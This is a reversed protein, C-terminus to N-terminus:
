YEKRQRSSPINMAKRYKTITRRALTYGHTAMEKVLADDSLPNSKDESDIVEQLKLRIKQWAVEDGESTTTGGGFFRRLPYLGRPTEMWKGDVARSITTVHVGVDDAIQQMKLPVIAEPGNELFDTQHDVIAQSVKRLTTHRQEISDILWKASEIKKRIYEKTKADPNDALMRLYKRSIKLEPTYENLLQVTWKDDDDQQVRVDPTVNQSVHSQFCRGPFPEFTRIQELGAKITELSYGTTREILPLRNHSINDLHDSILTIVIDRLPLDDTVQLLLCEQLDRAGVGPPDLKQILGLVQDATGHDISKGYVQMIEPLTGQLRGNEDLNQILFEGFDRVESDVEFYHFQELLYDHLSQPNAQLNGMLDHQRDSYEDIRNASPKGGSTINDEPWDDSMELLREFDAENNHDNDVTIERQEIEAGSSSVESESEHVDKQKPDTLELVVNEELEQDIKEQLAMVSMQLIEMSQIMRPALKMQQSMKM